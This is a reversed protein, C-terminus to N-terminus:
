RSRVLFALLVLLCLRKIRIRIFSVSAIIGEVFGESFIFGVGGMGVLGFGGGM